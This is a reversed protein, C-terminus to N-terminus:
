PLEWERSGVWPETAVQARSRTFSHAPDPVRWAGYMAELQEEHRDPKLWRRGALEVPELGHSPLRCRLQRPDRRFEGHTAYLYYELQDDVPAMEFFEFRAGSRLVRFETPEGANNRFVAGPDFGRELLMPLAELLRGRDCRHYGFDADELDHGLPRGERAWGLLLGARIWYRGAM